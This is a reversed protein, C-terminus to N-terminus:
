EVEKTRIPEGYVEVMAQKHVLWTGESKRVLGKEIQKDFLGRTLAARVTDKKLGWQKAAEPPTATM